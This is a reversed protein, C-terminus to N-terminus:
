TIYDFIRKIESTSHKNLSLDLTCSTGDKPMQRAGEALIHSQCLMHECTKIVRLKTQITQRTSGTQIAKDYM